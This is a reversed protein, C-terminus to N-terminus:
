ESCCGWAQAEFLLHLQMGTLPLCAACCCCANVDPLAFVHIVQLMCDCHHKTCASDLRCLPVLPPIPLHAQCSLNRKGALWSLQGETQCLQANPPRIGPTYKDLVDATDFIPQVAYVTRGRSYTCCQLTSQWDHTNRCAFFGCHM